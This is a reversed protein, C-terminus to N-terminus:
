KNMSDDNYSTWMPEEKVQEYKVKEDLVKYCDLTLEMMQPEIVFFPGHYRTAKFYFSKQFRAPVTVPEAKVTPNPPVVEPIRKPRPRIVQPCDVYPNM